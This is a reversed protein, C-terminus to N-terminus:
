PVFPTRADIAFMSVLIESWALLDVEKSHLRRETTYIAKHGGSTLGSLIVDDYGNREGLRV